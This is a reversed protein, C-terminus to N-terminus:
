VAKEKAGARVLDGFRTGTEGALEAPQGVEVIAGKDMVVVKDFDMIM